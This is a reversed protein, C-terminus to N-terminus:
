NKLYIKLFSACGFNRAKPAVAELFSICRIRKFDAEDVQRRATLLRAPLVLLKDM